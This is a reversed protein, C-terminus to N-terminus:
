LGLVMALKARLLKRIFPLPHGPSNPVNKLLRQPAPATKTCVLMQVTPVSGRVIRNRYFDLCHRACDFTLM